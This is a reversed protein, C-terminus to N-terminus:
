DAWYTPKRGFPYVGPVTPFSRYDAKVDVESYNKFLREEGCKNCKGLSMPGDPEEIRWRHVCVDTM